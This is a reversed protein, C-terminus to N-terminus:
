GLALLVIGGLIIGAAIFRKLSDKEKLLNVGFFVGFVISLERVPAVYTIPTTKMAILILLYSLPQFISIALVQKWHTKVELKVETYKKIVVPILLVLPLMISAFTIFIVSVHNEVTAARDWLTYAAIFAGTLLGYNLGKMVATDEGIKFGTMVVVGAVILLIGAVAMIGPREGFLMIAGAVSFLPGAGRAVPYVVSLDAKRYGVQLAVFYLLHLIASVFAFGLMGYAYTIDEKNLQFIVVPLYLVASFLSILWFFPLGGNVQKTILNWIAHLLAAVIVITLASATMSNLYFKEQFKNTNGCGIFYKKFSHINM